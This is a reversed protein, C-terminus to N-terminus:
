AGHLARAWGEPKGKVRPRLSARPFLTAKKGRQKGLNRRSGTYALGRLSPNQQLPLSREAPSRRDRTEEGGTAMLGM